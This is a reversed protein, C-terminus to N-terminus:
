PESKSRQAFAQVADMNCQMPRIKGKGIIHGQYKCVNVALNCKRAKNRLGAQCIQQLVRLLHGLHDEWTASHILIDDLYAVAIGYCKM